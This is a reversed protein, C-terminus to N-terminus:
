SVDGPEPGRWNKGYDIVCILLGPTVVIVTYDGTHPNVWVELHPGRVGEGGGVYVKGHHQMMESAVETTMCVTAMVPGALLVFLAVLLGRM